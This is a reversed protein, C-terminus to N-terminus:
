REIKAEMDSEETPVKLIGSGECPECIEKDWNVRGRGSCKPCRFPYYQPKFNQTKSLEM